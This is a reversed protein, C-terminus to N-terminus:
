VKINLMYNITEDFSIMDLINEKEEEKNIYIFTNDYGKSELIKSLEQRGSEFLKMHEEKVKFNVNLRDYSFDCLVKVKELNNTDLAMYVKMSDSKKFVRKKSLIYLSNEIDKNNFTFPILMMTAKDNIKNYFDVTDNLSNAKNNLQESSKTSSSVESLLKESVEKIESYFKSLKEDDKGDFKLNINQSKDLLEQKTKSDIVGEKEALELVEIMEKSLTEHNELFETLRSLNNVSVKVDSKMLFTLRQIIDESTTDSSFINKMEHKIQETIQKFKLTSDVNDFQKLIDKFETVKGEALNDNKIINSNTNDSKETTTKDKVLSNFDISKFEDIDEEILNQANKIQEKTNDTNKINNALNIEEFDEATTTNDLQESNKSSLIKQKNLFHASISKFEDNKEVNIMKQNKESNSETNQLNKDPNLTAESKESQELDSVLVKILKTIDQDLPKEGPPTQVEEGDTINILSMIKDTYKSIAEINEPTLPMKYSIMNEIISLSKADKPLNNLNLIRDMILSENKLVYENSFDMDEYVPSMHLTNNQTDKILFKIVKGELLNSSVDIKGEVIEGNGLDIKAVGNKVELVRARIVDGKKLRDLRKIHDRNINSSNGIDIRM